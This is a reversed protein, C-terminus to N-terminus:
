TAASGRGSRERGARREDDRREGRERHRDRHAAHDVEAERGLADPQDVLIEGDHDRHHRHERDRARQAVVEDGHEALAHDGVQAGGHERMEGVSDGAKKSAALVPSIMERSVASVVWILAATPVETETASRLRRRNRPEAAM